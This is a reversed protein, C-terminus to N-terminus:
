DGGIAPSHSCNNCIIANGTFPVQHLNGKVAVLDSCSRLCSELHKLLSSLDLRDTAIIKLDCSLTSFSNLLVQMRQSIINPLEQDLMCRSHQFSLLIGDFQHQLKELQNLNLNANQLLMKFNQSAMNFDRKKEAYKLALEEHSSTTELSTLINQKFSFNTDLTSNECLKKILESLSDTMTISKENVILSNLQQCLRYSAKAELQLCELYQVLSQMLNEVREHRLQLLNHEDNSHSEELQSKSLQLEVKQRRYTLEDAEWCSKRSVIVHECSSKKIKIYKEKCKCVNRCINSKLDCAQSEDSSETHYTESSENRQVLLQENHKQYKKGDRPM